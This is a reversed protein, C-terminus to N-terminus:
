LEKLRSNKESGAGKNQGTSLTHNEASAKLTKRSLDGEYTYFGYRVEIELSRKLARIKNNVSILLGYM